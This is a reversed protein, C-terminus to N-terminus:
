KFFDKINEYDLEKLLEEEIAKALKNTLNFNASTDRVLNTAETGEISIKRAILYALQPETPLKGNFSRPIVPKVKIWHLIDDIPPFHPKTGTELYKLYDAGEISINVLDNEYTVKAQLSNDGGAAHESDILAQKYAEVFQKAIEEITM